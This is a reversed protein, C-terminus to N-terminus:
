SSVGLATEKKHVDNMHKKIYTKYKAKFDCLKCPFTIDTHTLQHVNYSSKHVFSDGCENCQYRIKKEHVHKIHVTLYSKYVTQYDCLTCQVKEGKNHKARQHYDLSAKRMNKGCQDCKIQQAELARKKNLKEMDNMKGHQKNSHQRLSAASSFENGCSCHTYGSLVAICNLLQSEPIPM